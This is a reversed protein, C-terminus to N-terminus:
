KKVKKLAQAAAERVKPDKDKQAKELVPAASLAEKGIKGLTKAAYYRTRPNTDTDLVHTIETIGVRAADEINAFAKLLYYRTDADAEKLASTMAEAAPIAGIGIKSLVKAARYRVKPDPDALTEILEDVAERGEPGYDELQKLTEYRVQHDESALQEALEGVPTQGCGLLFLTGALLLAPSLNNQKFNLM